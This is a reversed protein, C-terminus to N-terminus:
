NNRPDNIPYYSFRNYKTEWEEVTYGWYNAARKNADREYWRLKYTTTRCKEPIIVEKSTGASILSPVGIYFLYSLGYDQSQLYHGYEHMYLPDLAPDFKGDKNLPATGNDEINIYSGISVGNNSQRNELVTFTAGGSYYVEADNVMNRGHSFLFGAATQLGQWTFRSTIEWLQGWFNKSSDAIFLGGWIKISNKATEVGERWPNKGTCLGRFFGVIFDDIVIFEGNPDTYVLPNNLCYTYRNFNQTFDSMQVFPDPSIFMGLVPDYFRANMNIINFLPIHEHGTYGRGLVLTPQSSADYAVHTAPNRLRGWADYSLEEKISGDSNLLHTISGLYDRCIYYLKWEDDDNIYVAPASYADGGIYLRETSGSGFPQHMYELEYKNGAYYKTIYNLGGDRYIEMSTREYSANYKFSVAEGSDYNDIYDPRQFSTFGLYETGTILNNNVPTFQTVQYPKDLNSYSMSGVEDKQTINGDTTYTVTSGAANILRNLNDYQFTETISRISDTRSLLNGTVPDFNYKFNQAVGVSRGTPIGYQTYTYSRSITDSIASTQQGFNNEALLEYVKQWISSGQANWETLYCHGNQYMYRETGIEGLQSTYKITSVNDGNYTYEQLLYKNNSINEKLSSVRGYSDYTIVKSTNNTSTENTLLGDSNYTYTTNFEPRQISITRGNRDTQETITKNRADTISTVLIDGDYTYSTTIRGASPDIIATQQGYTDYEFQTTIENSGVSVSLPQGDARLTYNIEGGADVVKILNGIADTTKISTIGNITETTSLEDYSWSSVKGSPETISIPRDYDDYEYVNWQTPNSGIFPLSVKQIRSRSDYTKDIYQWSGDFRKVGERVKRSIADYHVEETPESSSEKTEKFLGEGGWEKYKIEYTGDYNMIENIVGFSDYTMHTDQDKHNTKLTPNGFKDYYSYTTVLGLADTVSAIYRGSSDYTYTDGIFNTLDHPASKESIVNGNADYEWRIEGTRQTGNVGTYTIKSIPKRNSNYTIVDREVWTKSGNNTVNKKEIPLGIQYISSTILNSYSNTTETTIEDGVGSYEYIKTENTINNYNDYSYFSVNTLDNLLDQNSLELLRPNCKKNSSENKTYTYDLINTETTQKTKLGFMTPNFEDVLVKNGDIYNYTTEIKEFGCFGLGQRHLVAGYYKYDENRLYEGNLISTSRRILNIPAIFSSYPFNYHKTSPVYNSYMNAMDVYQSEHKVGYSDTLGTLLNEKSKEHSFFYGELFGNDFTIFSNSAIISSTNLPIIDNNFSIAVPQVSSSSEIIGNNNLHATVASYNSYILDSLGDSNIDMLLYNHESKNNVIPMEKVVFGQGTSIYAKWINGNDVDSILINERTYAGHNPCTPPEPFMDESLQTGCIRCGGLNKWSLLEADCHRCATQLPEIIPNIEGCFECVDPAWVPVDCTKHYKFSEKPAVLIDIKGDANLDGFLPLDFIIDRNLNDSSFVEEYGDVSFSYVQTRFENIVCLETRGDGTIDLANIFNTEDCNIDFITSEKIITGNELDILSYYSDYENNFNCLERCHSLTLLQIKGNGIFDGYYYIRSIPSYIGEVNVVGSVQVNFSTESLELNEDITYKTITLQTKTRDASIGNFNIKVIEDTGDGNVDLSNINQFGSEAYIVKSKNVLQTRPFVLIQQDSPFLSGYEYKNSNYVSVKGYTNFYGPYTIIGDSFEKKTFRGRIFVPDEEFYNDLSIIPTEEDGVFEYYDDSYFDYAFKLPNLFTNGVSCDIKTLQNINHNLEHTLTYTSLEQLSENHINYSIIEKLIKNANIEDGSSYVTTYDTRDEYNFHIEALHSQLDKGGYKIESIYYVNNSEIYEFYVKYGNIDELETIPYSLKMGHSEPIGYTAISGNPMKVIFNSVSNNNLQKKVLTFGQATKM